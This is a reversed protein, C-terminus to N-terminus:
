ERSGTSASELLESKLFRWKDGFKYGKIKGSQAWQYVTHCSVRLLASVESVTLFDEVQELRDPM